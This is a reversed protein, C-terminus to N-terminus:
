KIDEANLTDTFFFFFAYIYIEIELGENEMWTKSIVIFLHFLVVQTM